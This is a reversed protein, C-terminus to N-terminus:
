RLRNTAAFIDCRDGNEWPFDCRGVGQAYRRSAPGAQGTADLQYTWRVHTIQIGLQNPQGAYRKPLANWLDDATIEFAAAQGPQLTPVDVFREGEAVLGADGAVGPRRVQYVIRVDRVLDPSANGVRGKLELPAVPHEPVPDIFLVGYNPLNPIALPAPLRLQPQNPTFAEPGTASFRLLQPQLTPLRTSSSSGLSTPNAGRSRAQDPTLSNLPGTSPRSGQDLSPSELGGWTLGSRDAEPGCLANLNLSRGTYDTAGCPHQFPNLKRPLGLSSASTQAIAEAGGVVSIALAALLAWTGTM